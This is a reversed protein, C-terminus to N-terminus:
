DLTRMRMADILMMMWKKNQIWYSELHHFTWCCWHWGRSLISTIELVMTVGIGAPTPIQCSFFVFKAGRRLWVCTKIGYEPLRLGSFNCAWFAKHKQSKSLATAGGGCAELFSDGATLLQLPFPSSDLESFLQFIASKRFDNNEITKRPKQLKAIM